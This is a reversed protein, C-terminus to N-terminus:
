EEVGVESYKCYHFKEEGKTSLFNAFCSGLSEGPFSCGSVWKVLGTSIRKM